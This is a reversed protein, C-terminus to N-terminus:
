ELFISLAMTATLSEMKWWVLQTQFYRCPHLRFGANFEHADYEALLSFYRHPSVLMGAFFGDLQHSQAPLADTGFGLNVCINMYKLHYNRAAVAYLSAFKQAEPPELKLSKIAFLDQAGFAVAPWRGHEDFLRIKIHVSRDGAGFPYHDPRVIMASGELFPLYGLSIFYITWDDYPWHHAYLGPVRSIGVNLQGNQMVQASPVLMLGSYGMLTIQQRGGKEGALSALSLALTAMIIASLMLLPRWPRAGQLYTPNQMVMFLRIRM